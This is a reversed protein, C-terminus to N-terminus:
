SIRSHPRTARGDLRPAACRCDFGLVAPPGMARSERPTFQRCKAGWVSASDVFIGPSGNCISSTIGEQVLSQSGVSVMGVHALMPLSQTDPINWLERYVAEVAAHEDRFNAEFEKLYRAVQTPILWQNPPTGM